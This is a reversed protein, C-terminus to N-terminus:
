KDLLQEYEIDPAHLGRLAQPVGIQIDYGDPTPEYDIQKLQIESM